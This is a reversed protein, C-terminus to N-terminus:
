RRGRKALHSRVAERVLQAVSIGRDEARETLRTVDDKEFDITLRVPDRVVRPRGANARKGGRTQM